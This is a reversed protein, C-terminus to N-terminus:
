ECADDCAEEDPKSTTAGLSRRIAPALSVATFGVAILLAQLRARAM